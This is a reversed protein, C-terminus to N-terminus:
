ILDKVYLWIFTAAGYVSIFFSILAIRHPWSNKWSFYPILNPYCRDRYWVSVLTIITAIVWVAYAYKM